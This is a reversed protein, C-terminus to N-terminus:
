ERASFTDRNQACFDSLPSPQATARTAAHILSATPIRRLASPSTLEGAVRRSQAVTIMPLEILVM